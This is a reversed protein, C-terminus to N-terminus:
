FEGMILITWESKGIPQELSLTSFTAYWTKTLKALEAPIHLPYLQSILAADMCKPVTSFLTYILTSLWCCFKPITTPILNAGSVLMDAQVTPSGQVPGHLGSKILTM